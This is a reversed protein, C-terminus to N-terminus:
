RHTTFITRMVGPSGTQLFGNLGVGSAERMHTDLSHLDDAISRAVRWMHLLSEHRQAYIENSSRSIAEYLRIPLRVFSDQVYEYGRRESVNLKLARVSFLVVQFCNWRSWDINNSYSRRKVSTFHGFRSGDSKLTKPLRLTTTPVDKHLGASLAKRVAM